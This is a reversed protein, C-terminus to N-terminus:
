LSGVEHKFVCFTGIEDGEGRSEVVEIAPEALRPLAALSELRLRRGEM